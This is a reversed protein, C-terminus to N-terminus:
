RLLHVSGSQALGGQLLSYLYVGAPLPRDASDTGRWIARQPGAEQWDSILRRVLRGDPAYIALSTAGARPLVYRIETSRRFPNPVPRVDLRGSSGRVEGTGTAIGGERIELVQNPPVATLLDSEGSPWRVRISDIVTADLLGFHLWLNQGCYGTQGEV